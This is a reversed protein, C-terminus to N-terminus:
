QGTATRIKHELSDPVGAGDYLGVPRRAVISFYDQDAYGRVVLGGIKGQLDHGEFLFGNDSREVSHEGRMNVNGSNDM